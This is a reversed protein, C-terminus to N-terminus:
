KKIRFGIKSLYEEFPLIQAMEIELTLKGSVIIKPKSIFELEMVPSKVKYEKPINKEVQNRVKELVYQVCDEFSRTPTKLAKVAQRVGLWLERTPALNYVKNVYVQKNSSREKKEETVEEKPETVRFVKKLGNKIEAFSTFDFSEIIKGNQTIEVKGTHMVKVDITAVQTSKFAVSYGDHLTWSKHVPAKDLKITKLYDFAKVAAPNLVPESELLYNTLNINM